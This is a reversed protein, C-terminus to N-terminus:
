RENTQAARRLWQTSRQEVEFGAREYLAVAATNDGDVYLSIRNPAHEAMRRLTEGLLGAGLGLGAFSPDVGISYLETEVGHPGAVTKVWTSGALRHEGGPGTPHPSSSLHPSSGVAWALRLDDPAFWGEQELAEFDGLTMRGQEPHSAFAAANVRVWEEAQSPRAAPDYPEVEFGEPMARAGDIAAQLRDPDLTMRLLERVPEFGARRLLAAAAPSEGHAWARLERDDLQDPRARDEVERLLLELARGGRGEGRSRPRVVLDLEGEGVIGVADDGLYLPRRGQQAAILAQDSIPASGDAAEAEDLLERVAAWVEPNATDAKLM